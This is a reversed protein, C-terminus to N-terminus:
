GGLIKGDMNYAVALVFRGQARKSAGEALQPIELSGEQQFTETSWLKVTGSGGGAVALQKGLPAFAVGWTEAPPSELAAKQENSSVEFVRVISDLSSSAALTGTPNVAVSVVGLSHGANTRDPQLGSDGVQFCFHKRM